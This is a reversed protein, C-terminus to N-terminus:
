DGRPTGSWLSPGHRKRAEWYNRAVEWCALLCSALGTFLPIIQGASGFASSTVLMNAAVMREASVIAILPGALYVLFYHVLDVVLQIPHFSISGSSLGPFAPKLANRLLIKYFYATGFRSSLPAMAGAYKIAVLRPGSAIGDVLSTLHIFFVMLFAFGGIVALGAAARTWAYSRIDFVALMAAKAGCARDQLLEIGRLWYWAGFLTFASFYINQFVLSLDAHLELTEVDGEEQRVDANATNDRIELNYSEAYFLVVTLYYSMLYDVSLATGQCINIVTALAVASALINSATRVRPRAEFCPSNRLIFGAAWQLYMGIRIGTGYLDVDTITACQDEPTVLRPSLLIM